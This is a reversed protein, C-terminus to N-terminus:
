PRLQSSDVKVSVMVVLYCSYGRSSRLHGEDESRGAETDNLGGDTSKEAASFRPFIGDEPSNAIGRPVAANLEDMTPFTGAFRLAHDDLYLSYSSRGEGM